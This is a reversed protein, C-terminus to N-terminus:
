QPESHLGEHARVEIVATGPPLPDLAVQYMAVGARTPRTPIQRPEFHDSASRLVQGGGDYLVGDLHTQTTDEVALRKVVSGAVSLPGQKRELWIKEVVVNPSNTRQLTLHAVDPPARFPTASGALIASAVALSLTSLPKMPHPM